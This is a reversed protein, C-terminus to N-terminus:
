VTPCAGAQAAYTKFGDLYASSEACADFRKLAKEVPQRPLPAGSIVVYEESQIRTELSRGHGTHPLGSQHEMETSPATATQM